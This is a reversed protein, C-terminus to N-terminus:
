FCGDLRRPRDFTFLKKYEIQPIYEFDIFGGERACREVTAALDIEIGPKKEAKFRLYRWNQQLRREKVPLFHNTFIFKHDLM